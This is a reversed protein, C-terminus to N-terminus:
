SVHRRGLHCLKAESLTTELNFFRKAFLRWPEVPGIRAPAAKKVEVLTTAM